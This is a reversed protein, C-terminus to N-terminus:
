ESIVKVDGRTVHYVVKYILINLEDGEIMSIKIEEKGIEIQLTCQRFHIKFTYRNWKEPIVPNFCLMDDKIQMGAFGHVIALWSGAMSTIHLGQDLENNYDDLDLRTAHLFLNYAKTIDGIRSALISHVYPSLSSEHVTRPEYFRFNRRVTEDDFNSYYLYLGLLVDSQKIYCSRLIRDWSWHQNIPMEEAPIDDITKLEKDLYGDTQVFIGLERDEPLYM